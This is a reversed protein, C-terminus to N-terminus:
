DRYDLTKGKYEILLQSLSDASKEMSEKDMAGMDVEYVSIDNENMLVAIGGSNDGIMVFSYHDLLVPCPSTRIGFDENLNM